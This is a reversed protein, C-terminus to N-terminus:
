CILKLTFIDSCVQIGCGLPALLKLEDGNNIFASVNVLSTEQVRTLKAFSSQGFFSGGIEQSPSKPFWFADKM